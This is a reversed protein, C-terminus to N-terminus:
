EGVQDFTRWYKYKEAGFIINPAGFIINPAGIIINSSQLRNRFCHQM